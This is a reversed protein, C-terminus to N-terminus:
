HSGISRNNTKKAAAENQAQGSGPRGQILALVKEDKCDWEKVIPDLNSSEATM